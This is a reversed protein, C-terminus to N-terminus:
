KTFRCFFSISVEVWEWCTSGIERELLYGGAKWYKNNVFVKMAERHQGRAKDVRVYGGVLDNVVRSTGLSRWVSYSQRLEQCFKRMFKQKWWRLIIKQILQLAEVVVWVQHTCVRRDWIEMTIISYGGKPKDTM